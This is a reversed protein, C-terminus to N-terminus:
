RKLAWVGSGWNSAYLIHNTSDFAMEFPGDGISQAGSLPSWSQGDSELSTSFPGGINAYAGHAYIYKGDGFVATTFKPSSVSSFTKGNDTSRIVENEGSVYLDGRMTYYIQGGGHAMNSTSVQTWTKGGDSTRWYGKGQTGFLWTNRDGIGLAPNSLFFVDFGGAGAWGPDPNHLVFTNGGDTSEAVGSTCKGFGFDDCNYWNWHFSLLVHNFDAPDPEVHYVDADSVTQSLKKFGDPQAWTKGGDTSAWFGNTGGRVSDGVYLHLPDKPDVRVNIPQEFKGVTTWSSGADTSRYLGGVVTAFTSSNFGSVTVYLTAPNCPDLTMGQVFVNEAGWGFSPGKPSINKFVGATLSPAGSPLKTSGNACTPGIFPGADTGTVSTGTMGGAGGKAGAGSDLIAGTAGGSGNNTAGGAGSTSDGSSGGPTEFPDQVPGDSASGCAVLAAASVVLALWSSSELLRKM